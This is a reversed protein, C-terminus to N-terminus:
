EMLKDKHYEIVAYQFGILSLILSIVQSEISLKETNGVMFIIAAWIIIFLWFTTHTSIQSIVGIRDDKRYQADM